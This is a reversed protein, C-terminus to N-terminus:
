IEKEDRGGGAIRKLFFVFTRGNRQRNVQNFFAAPYPTGKDV